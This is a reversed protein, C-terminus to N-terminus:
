KPTQQQYENIFLSKLLIHKVLANKVVDSFVIFVLVEWSNRQYTSDYGSKLFLQTFNGKQCNGNEQYKKRLFVKITWSVLINM